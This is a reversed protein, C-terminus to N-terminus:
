LLKKVEEDGPAVRLADRLQEAAAAHEGDQTLMQALEIYARVLDPKCRIADRFSTGADRHNGTKLLCRALNLHAPAHAPNLEIGRRYSAAAEEPRNLVLLAGVRFLHADISKPWQRTTEALAKEAADFDRAQLLARGLALHALESR